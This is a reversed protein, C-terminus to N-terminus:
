VRKVFQDRWNKIKELDDKLEDPLPPSAPPEDSQSDLYVSYKTMMNDLLDCDM